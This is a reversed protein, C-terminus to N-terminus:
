ARRGAGERAAVHADWMARTRARAREYGIRDGFYGGLFGALVRGGVILILAYVITAYLLRDKLFPVTLVFVIGGVVATLLGIYALGNVWRAEVKRQERLADMVEVPVSDVTKRGTAFEEGCHPCRLSDRGVPTYCNGCFRGRNPAEGRSVSVLHEELAESFLPCGDDPRFRSEQPDDFTM